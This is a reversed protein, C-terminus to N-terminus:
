YTQRQVNGQQRPQKGVPKEPAEKPPKPTGCPDKKPIKEPKGTDQPRADPQRPWKETQGFANQALMLSLLMASIQLLKKM